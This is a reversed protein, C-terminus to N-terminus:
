ILKELYDIFDVASGKGGINFRDLDYETFERDYTKWDYITFVNGEFEVVWEVQTKNDGSPEDFTPEGLLNVLERYTANIYGQLHTGSTNPVNEENFVKIKM